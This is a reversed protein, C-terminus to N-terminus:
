LIIKIIFNYSLDSSFFVRPTKWLNSEGILNINIWELNSVNLAILDSFCIIKKDSRGGYIIVLGLKSYFHM